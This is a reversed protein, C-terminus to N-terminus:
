HIMINQLHATAKDEPDLLEFLGNFIFVTHKKSM